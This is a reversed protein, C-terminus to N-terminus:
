ESALKELEATQLRGTLADLSEKAIKITAESPGAAATASFPFRRLEVGRKYKNQLMERLKAREDVHDRELEETLQAVTEGFSVSKYTNITKGRGGGGNCGAAFAMVKDQDKKQIPKCSAEMPRVVWPKRCAQNPCKLPPQNLTSQTSGPRRINPSLGNGWDAANGNNPAKKKKLCHHHFVHGCAGFEAHCESNHGPNSKECAKCKAYVPRTCLQCSYSNNNQGDILAALSSLCVLGYVVQGEVDKADRENRPVEPGFKVFCNVHPNGKANYESLSQGSILAKYAGIFLQQRQPPVGIEADILMKLEDVTTSSNAWVLFPKKEGTARVNISYNDEDTDCVRALLDPSMRDM